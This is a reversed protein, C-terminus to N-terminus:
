FKKKLLWCINKSSRDSGSISGMDYVKIVIRTEPIKISINITDSVKELLSKAVFACQVRSKVVNQLNIIQEGM